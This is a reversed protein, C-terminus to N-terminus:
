VRIYYLLVVVRNWKYIINYVRSYLFLVRTYLTGFVLMHTYHFKSYSFFVFFISTVNNLYKIYVIQRRSRRSLIIHYIELSVSTIIYHYYVIKQKKKKFFIFFWIINYLYVWRYHKRTINEEITNVFKM